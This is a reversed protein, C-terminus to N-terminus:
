LLGRKDLELINNFQKNKTLIKFLPVGIITVIIIESLMIQGTTLFFAAEGKTILFIELGVLINAIAPVISAVWINKCKSMFYVALFSALTGIIMDWIYPSFLNAIFCGLTLGWIYEPNFFALLTMVESARFQLPGYSLNPFALTLVAYLAAIVGQRVLFKSNIKKNM